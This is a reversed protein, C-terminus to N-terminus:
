YMVQVPDYWWTNLYVEYVLSVLVGFHCFDLSDGFAFDDLWVYISQRGKVLNYEQNQM